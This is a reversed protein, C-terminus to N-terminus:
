LISLFFMGIDAYIIEEKEQAEAIVQGRNDNNMLGDRDFNFKKCRTLL